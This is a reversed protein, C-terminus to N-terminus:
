NTVSLLTKQKTPIRCVFCTNPDDLDVCLDGGHAVALSHSISLGLGSGKGVPKTTFYTEFVRAAIEWPIRPGGNRVRFEVMDGDSLASLKVWRESSVESDQSGVADFANNLLNLLIQSVQLPRCFVSMECDVTPVDLVVGHTIFRSSCLDLTDTIITAVPAVEFDSDAENRSFRYLSKVIRQIRTSGKEISVLNSKLAKMLDEPITTTFDDVTDQLLAMRAHIVALPNNIEHAVHSALEGMMIMKATHIADIDHKQKEAEAAKQETLDRLLFSFLAGERMVVPTVSIELPIKRGSQLFYDCEFIRKGIALDVLPNSIADNSPAVGITQALFNCQSYDDGVCELLQQAVENITLISGTEDLLVIPSNSLEIQANAMSLVHSSRMLSQCQSLLHERSGRESVVTAGANLLEMPQKQEEGYVVIPTYIFGRMKRLSALVSVCDTACCILVLDAVIPIDGNLISSSDVPVISFVDSFEAALVLDLHGVVLVVKSKWHIETGLTSKKETNGLEDSESCVDEFDSM